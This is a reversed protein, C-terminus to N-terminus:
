QVSINHTAATALNKKRLVSLHSIMDIKVQEVHPHNIGKMILYIRHQDANRLQEIGYNNERSMGTSNLQM